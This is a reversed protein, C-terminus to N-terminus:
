EVKGWGEDPRGKSKRGKQKLMRNGTERGGDEKEWTRSKAEQGKKM